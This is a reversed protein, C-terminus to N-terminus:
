SGQAQRHLEVIPGVERLFAARKAPDWEDMKGLKRFLARFSSSHAVLKSWPNEAHARQPKVRRARAEGMAEFMRQRAARAEELKRIPRRRYVRALYVCFQVGPGTFAGPLRGQDDRLWEPRPQDRECADQLLMGAQRLGNLAELELEGARKVKERAGVYLESAREVM